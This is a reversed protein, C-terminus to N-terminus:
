GWVPLSEWTVEKGLVEFAEADLYHVRPLQDGFLGDHNRSMAVPTIAVPAGLV